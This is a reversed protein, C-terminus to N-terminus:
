ESGHSLSLFHLRIHALLFLSCYFVWKEPCCYQRKFYFHLLFKDEELGNEQECNRNAWVSSWTEESIIQILEKGLISATNEEM